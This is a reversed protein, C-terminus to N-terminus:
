LLTRPKLWKDFTPTLLSVVLLALYSGLAVSIYLQAIACFFGILIAYVIRARRSMPRVAPSTALFFAMFVMPGAMIEYNVFTVATPIGVGLQRWVMWQWDRANEQITVPIPLIMMCVWATILILVPIRFDILGRYLLFLGGVIIAVASGTGIPSPHGAIILDELDPMRDRLLSDLTLYGRDPRSMGTSYFTLQSSAPAIRVAHQGNVPRAHIWPGNLRVPQAGADLVDGVFLKNIQLIYQPAMYHHFGGALLLHAVLVPHVRGSAIDGLLWICAALVLGAAPLLPWTVVTENQYPHAVTLLHPPLTFSLLLGLWLAHSYRLNKGRIGVRRWLAIGAATSGVVLLISILARWGYLLLGASLPLLAATMHMGIFRYISVGSHTLLAGPRLPVDGPPHLMVPLETSETEAALDTVFGLTVSAAPPDIIASAAGLSQICDAAVWRTACKTARRPAGRRLM